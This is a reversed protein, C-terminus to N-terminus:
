PRKSLTITTTMRGDREQAADEDLGIGSQELAGRLASVDATASHVLAARIAGDQLYSLNELEVGPVHSIAEFLTATTQMFVDNASLEAVRGRLEAIPDSSRDDGIIGRAAAEARVELGRAVAENRVIEATWIALPSLAAIAALVAFRRYGSWRSRGRAGAGFDQQLLNMMLPRTSAAGFLLEIESQREISTRRRADILMSALEAEASFAIHDGRVAVIDGLMVALLGDDPAPLLLHDPVVIDPLIGLAVARDLFDQMLARDVVSVARLGDDEPEGLAIHIDDGPASIQDKLLVAAAEAARNQPGEELELWRTVVETGPVVLITRGKFGTSPTDATFTSRGAIAGAGDIILFSSPQDSSPSLLILRTQM